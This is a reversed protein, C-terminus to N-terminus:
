SVLSSDSFYWFTGFDTQEISQSGRKLSHIALNLSAVAVPLGRAIDIFLM